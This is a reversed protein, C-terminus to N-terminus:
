DAPNVQISCESCESILGGTCKQCYQNCALCIRDAPTPTSPNPYFRDPCTASCVNTSHLFSGSKCTLCDSVSNGCTECNSTCEQCARASTNTYTTPPCSPICNGQYLFSGLVCSTCLGPDKGTCAACTSPCEMCTNLVNDQYLNPTSGSCSTM